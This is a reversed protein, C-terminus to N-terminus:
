YRKRVHNELCAPSALHGCGRPLREVGSVLAPILKEGRDGKGLKGLEGKDEGSAAARSGGADCTVDM